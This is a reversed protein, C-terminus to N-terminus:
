RKLIREKQVLFEEDSLTGKDHLADLRELLAITEEPKSVSGEEQTTKSGRKQIEEIFATALVGAPIAFMGIGMVAIFSGLLKGGVTIPYVDGYGVTTLTVITWWMAQPISSFAEPQAEHELYFMLSSAFILIIVLVSAVVALIEKSKQFAGGLMKLAYSYRGLKLLRFLRMLRAARVFRLDVPILIPLFFPLIAVLDILAMPTFAYRVRGAVAGGYDPNETCTWLRLAYEISFVTVSFLEFAYFLDEYRLFIAEVSELMVAIVNAIILAMLCADFTRSVLGGRDPDGAMLLYVASKLRRYTV